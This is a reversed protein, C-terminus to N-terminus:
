ARASPTALDEAPAPHMRGRLGGWMLVLGVSVLAGALAWAPARELMALMQAPPFDPFVHAHLATKFFMLFTTSVVAGVGVAAGLLLAGVLATRLRLMQAGLRRWVQMTAYLLATGAGLLAVPLVHNDELSFWVFVLVAWGFALWRLARPYPPVRVDNM